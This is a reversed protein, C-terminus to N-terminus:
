APLSAPQSFAEDIAIVPPVLIKFVAGGAPHNEAWIRGGHATMIRRCIALGLGTGGSGDKTRSSQVFADFISELESPPIGPGQDALSLALGGDAQPRWDVTITTGPPSYRIANALVNRVVQQLRFSNVNAPHRPEVGAEAIVVQRKAALPRMEDIVERLLPVVDEVQLDAAGAAIDMKSLDLLDNVLHLMRQGATHIDDFMELLRPQEKARRTGLESFGIILTLPTRLEHSINAIFETKLMSATQAEDRAQAIQREAEHFRTVDTIAGVVGMPEDDDDLLAVKALVVDRVDGDKRKFQYEYVTRGGEAMLQRDKHHHLTLNAHTTFLEDARRGIADDREVQFFDVWADNVLKFREYRDKVFIPNPSVELLRATLALQRQLADTREQVRINLSASEAQLKSYLEGMEKSALEQSRELRYRDQDAEDYAQSVRQLLEGWAQPSPPGQASDIGLRKLQRQLLRHLPPSEM